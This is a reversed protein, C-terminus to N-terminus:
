VKFRDRCDIIVPGNSVNINRRAYVSMAWVSVAIAAVFLLTYWERRFFGRM